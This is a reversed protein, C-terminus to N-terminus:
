NKGSDLKRFCISTFEVTFEKGIVYLSNHDLFKYIFFIMAQLRKRQIKLALFNASRIDAM